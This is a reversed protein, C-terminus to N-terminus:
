SRASVASLRPKLREARLVIGQKPCTRVRNFVAESRTECLSLDFQVGEKPCLMGQVVARGRIAWILSDGRGGGVRSHRAGSPNTQIIKLDSNHATTNSSSKLQPINSSGHTFVASERRAVVDKPKPAFNLRLLMEQLLYGKM